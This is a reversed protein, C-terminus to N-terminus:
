YSQALKEDWSLFTDTDVNSMQATTIELRARDNAKAVQAVM